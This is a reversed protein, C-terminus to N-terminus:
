QLPSFAAPRGVTSIMTTLQPGSNEPPWVGDAVTRSRVDLRQELSAYPWIHLYRPLQGSTAYFAGYVNSYNEATRPGVAKRWGEVTPTLGSPVLDYERLEYFPGHAGPSLPELFPFLTYDDIQMNLLYEGIGFADQELLVREREQQRTTEDAFGRLVLIQNQPGIDSLWCGMLRAASRPDTLVPQLRDLVAAPTRVKVTFRILEYLRM